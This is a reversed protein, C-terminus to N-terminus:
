TKLRIMPENDEGALFPAIAGLGELDVCQGTKGQASLWGPGINHQVARISELGGRNNAALKGVHQVFPLQMGAQTEHGPFALLLDFGFYLLQEAKLIAEPRTKWPCATAGGM